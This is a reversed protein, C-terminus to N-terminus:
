TRWDKIVQANLRTAKGKRGALRNARALDNVTKPDVQNRNGHRYGHGYQAFADFGHKAWTRLLNPQFAQLKDDFRYKVNELCQIGRACKKADFYCHDMNERTMNVAEEESAIRPVVIFHGDLLEELVEKRTKSDTQTLEVVEADHPLHHTGYHYGKEQCVTAYDSLPRLNDEFYDIFRVEFGIHQMFWIAMMDNRGLDWFTHVPYARAWPVRTIHGRRRLQSMIRSLPAGDIIGRFAEDPTSPYERWMREKQEARKIVYWNKQPRALEIGSHEDLEQFYRRDDEEPERHTAIQYKRSMWWPYFFFKYDMPSLEVDNEALRKSTQCMDYFHGHAGEGTSEITIWNGISVTNLAGSVVEAAKEPFKACLKGFESIHLFQLTDSRMSTGVSIFSGNGFKLENANSRDAEPIYKRAFDEPINDYALKIKKDFFKEADDKTHAIVGCSTNPTFLATDLLFLQIVTTFGIQRSKLIINLNHMNKFFDYQEPRMYFPRLKGNEDVVKYLTNLRLFQSKLLKEETVKSFDIQPVPKIFDARGGDRERRPVPRRDIGEVQFGRTRTSM